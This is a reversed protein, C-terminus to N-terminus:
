LLAPDGAPRKDMLLNCSDSGAVLLSTRTFPCVDLCNISLTNFFSGLRRVPRRAAADPSDALWQAIAITADDSCSVIKAADAPHFQVAWVNAEHINFVEMTPQKPNRIDWLLVTGQDTGTAVRFSQSPHVAISELAYARSPDVFVASVEDMARRDFLKVQGARTSVALQKPTPWCVGTVVTSDVDYQQLADLRSLPACALRGDEGCSAVEADAGAAPQVAVGTAVAPEGNAFRHASVSQRLALSSSGDSGGSGDIGYLSITGYSSVTAVLDPRPAAIQEVDGDHTTRAVLTALAGDSSGSGGTQ